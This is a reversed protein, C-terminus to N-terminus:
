NKSLVNKINRRMISLSVYNGFPENLKEEIKRLKDHQIRNETLEEDLENMLKTNKDKLSLVECELKDIEQRQTKLKYLLDEYKERKIFM